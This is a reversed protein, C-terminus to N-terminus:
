DRPNIKQEDIVGSRPIKGNIKNSFYVNNHTTDILVPSLNNSLEKYCCHYM